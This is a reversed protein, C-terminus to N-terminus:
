DNSQQKFWEIIKGEPITQFTKELSPVKSIERLVKSLEQNYEIARLFFQGQEIDTADFLFDLVNDGEHTATARWIFHPLSCSLIELRLNSEIRTSNFIESKLDNITTLYIDWELREKLFPMVGQVRLVEVFSNDFRMSADFVVEFPIRIKHYLPILMLSIVARYNGGQSGWSTSISDIQSSDESSSIKIKDFNMRSFPGVQDDHVYIKDMQSAKLLFGSSMLPEIHSGLHFGTVAVAHGAITYDLQYQDNVKCITFGLLIPIQGRLYAYLTAKRIYEDGPNPSFPELGVDRIAQAMMEATLGDRNPFARTAWPFSQFAKETIKVPSPISHQFKKGTGQFVTWLASTACAAAVQDQEQFALTEVNLSIGFLNVNYQRIIPFFREGDKGADKKPYTRLCTRGIITKPLPKVIVFGLYSDQLDKETLLSNKSASILNKFDDEAFLRDFFHIRTCYRKYDPFCRVYYGSFDELFDRDVYNYEVIITRAKLTNFYEEFYVVYIKSEILHISAKSNDVLINKLESISYELAKFNSSM